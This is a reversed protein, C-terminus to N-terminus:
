HDEEFVQSATQVATLAETFPVHQDMPASARSQLRILVYVFLIVHIVATFLYLVSASIWTMAAAALFPGIIAGIGYMLLLGGSVMVYEGEQAYRAGTAASVRAIKL